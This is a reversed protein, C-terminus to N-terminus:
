WLMQMINLTWGRLRRGCGCENRVEALVLLLGFCFLWPWFGVAEDGCGEDGVLLPKDGELNWRRIRWSMLTTWPRLGNSRRWRWPRAEDVSLARRSKPQQGVEWGQGGGVTAQVGTSIRYFPSYKICCIFSVIPQLYKDRYTRTNCNMNNQKLKCFLFYGVAIQTAGVLGMWTWGVM